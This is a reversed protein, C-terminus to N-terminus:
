VRERRLILDTRDYPPLAGCESQEKASLRYRDAKENDRRIGCYYCDNRCINTFEILGRTYVCNGFYKQQQKRACSFLYEADEETRHGLLFVWEEKKLAHEKNLKDILEHVTQM